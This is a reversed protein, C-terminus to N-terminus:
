SPHWPNPMIEWPEGFVQARRKEELPEWVGALGLLSPSYYIYDFRLQCPGESPVALGRGLIVNLDHEVGWFKGEHLEAAYLAHFDERTFVRKGSKEYAAEVFRFESGRGLKKNIQLLFRNTDDESMETNGPLCCADFAENIIKTATSPLSGDEHLYKSDINSVLLSAPVAGDGFAVESADLLPACNHRKVKTTIQVGEQGRETPDGSERFEPGVTCQTLIERVASKGQSNFDGCFLVPVKDADLGM